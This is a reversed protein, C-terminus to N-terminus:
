TAAKLIIFKAHPKTLESNILCLLPFLLCFFNIRQIMWSCSCSMIDRYLQPRDNLSSQLWVFMLLMWEFPMTFLPALCSLYLREPFETITFYRSRRHNVEIVFCGTWHGPCDVNSLRHHQPKVCYLLFVVSYKVVKLPIQQELKSIFETTINTTHSGFLKNRTACATRWQTLKFEM